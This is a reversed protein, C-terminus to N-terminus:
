IYFFLKRLMDYSADKNVLTTDSDDPRRNKILLQPTDYATTKEGLIGEFLSTWHGQSWVDGGELADSLMQLTNWPERNM